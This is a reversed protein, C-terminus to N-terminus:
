AGEDPQDAAAHGLAERTEMAPLYEDDLWQQLLLRLREIEDAAEYMVEVSAVYTTGRRLREVIDSM